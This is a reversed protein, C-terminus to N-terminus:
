TAGVPQPNTAIPMGLWALVAENFRQPQEVMVWHGTDMKLVQSGPRAALREVWGPTHFPVLKRRGYVYLTACPPEFPQLGRYSGHRGTWTIFYPYNMGAHIQQPDTPCRLQRAMWRTMRTGLGGQADGGILWALALWAQYAFIMAKQKNSLFNVFRPSAADGIDVGILRAVLAPHQMVFQYGFLCGWDHLMLIVPRGPSLTEVVERLGDILRALPVARAPEGAGFGPLTLRVCRYHPLLAPMQADWLRWTDPWGHLMVLTDA